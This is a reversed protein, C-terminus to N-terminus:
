LRTYKYTQKQDGAAFGINHVIEFETDSTVIGDIGDGYFSTGYVSNSFGGLTQDKPLSIEDCIDIFTFGAPSFTGFAYRGVYKTRFTNIGTLTIVENTRTSTLGGATIVARYNGALESLCGVFTIKLTDYQAGVISGPSSTKLKLVLVTKFETSLNGTNVNLPYEGFTSGAPITIKGTTDVFDFEVGEVATSNDYDIEYEVEIDTDSYQGNGTGILDLPFKRLVVGEDEFYPVPYVDSPFGVVKPGTSLNQETRIDDDTCSTFAAAVFLLMILKKM